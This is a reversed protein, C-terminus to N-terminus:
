LRLHVLFFGPLHFLSAAEGRVRRPRFPDWGYPGPDNLGWGGVSIYVKLSPDQKKLATLRTYLAADNADAPVIEFTM